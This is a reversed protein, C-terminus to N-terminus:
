VTVESIAGIKVSRKAFCGRGRVLALRYSEIRGRVPVGMGTLTRTVSRASMSVGCEQLLWESIENGSKKDRVYLLQLLEEFTGEFALARLIEARKRYGNYKNM